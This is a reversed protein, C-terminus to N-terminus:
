LTAHYIQYHNKHFSKAYYLAKDALDLLDDLQQAHDPYFAVGISATPKFVHGEIEWGELLRVQVRRIFRDVQETRENEDRSLGPLLIVFEDGGLRVVLDNARMCNSLAESFKRIFEDGVDHGFRDNVEKFDDGDVFLLAIVDKNDAAWEVYRPFEEILFRRNPINTLSDHYALFKLNNEREKRETMERSIMIIQYMNGKEQEYVDKCHAETWFTEENKSLLQLELRVEIGTHMNHQLLNRWTKQSNEHLIQEYFRGVLDEEKYGLLRAYSSSAYTIMGHGDMIVILDNTNETILRFKKEITHLQNIARKKESIDYHVGLYQTVQGTVDVLPIITTENWYTVGNKNRNCIEGRWVKGSAITKWLEKFFSPPHYRANVVQHTRGIIEEREYGTREVFRDNVDTIVGDIDTITIDAASNMANKFTGLVHKTREIIKQQELHKTIEQLILFFARVEGDILPTITTMFSRLQGNADTFHLIQTDFAYDENMHMLSQRWNDMQDKKVIGLELFDQNRAQEFDLQFMKLFVPNAELLKLDKSLLVTSLFTKYFLSRTFLYKDQLDREFALEKTMALIYQKEDRIIPIVTTEYKRAESAHFSYDQFNQQENRELARDYYKIIVNEATNLNVQQISKGIVDANFISTAARNVYRYVYDGDIRESLFVFDKSQEFLINLQEYSLNKDLM